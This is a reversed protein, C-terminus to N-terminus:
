FCFDWCTLALVPHQVKSLTTTGCRWEVQLRGLDDLHCFYMSIGESVGRRSDSIAAVLPASHCQCPFIAEFQEEM